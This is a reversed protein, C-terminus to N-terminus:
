RFNTLGGNAFRPFLAHIPQRKEACESPSAQRKANKITTEILRLVAPQIPDYLKSVAANGRDVAMTYGTLDNTGISFFDVEKALLDSIIAASPTEIMVGVPTDAFKLGENKLEDKCEEILAKARRVEDLTTVLPLM